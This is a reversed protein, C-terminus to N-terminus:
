RKIIEVTWRRKDRSMRVMTRKKIYDVLQYCGPNNKGINDYASKIMVDEMKSMDWMDGEDSETEGEEAYRRAETPTVTIAKTMNDFADKAEDNYEFYNPAHDWDVEDTEEDVWGQERLWTYYYDDGAEWDSLIESVVDQLVDHYETLVPQLENDPAFAILDSMGDQEAVAFFEQLQPFRGKQGIISVLSVPTDDEDMFQGSPFHLQYKEGAHKPTKPILIYMPGQRNYQDFYNNGHVAATCWRTDRGYKCAAAENEPVIVTVADDAYVKKAKSANDNSDDVIDEFEDMKDMFENATKYRNIDNFPAPIKKKRNLKDFKAVSDALTSVVDELKLIHGMAFQRAMWQTYKKNATPDAAEISNMVRNIYRAQDAPSDFEDAVRSARDALHQQLQDLPVRWLSVADRIAALLLNKGLAQVARSRDYELLIDRIQM